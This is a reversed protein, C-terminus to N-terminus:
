GEAGGFLPIARLVEAKAYVSDDKAINKEAVAIINGTSIHMGSSTTLGEKGIMLRSVGFTSVMNLRLSECLVSNHKEMSATAKKNWRGGGHEVVYEKKSSFLDFINHTMTFSTPHIAGFNIM